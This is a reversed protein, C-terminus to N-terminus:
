EGVGKREAAAVQERLKGYWCVPLHKLRYGKGWPSEYEEIELRTGCSNCYCNCYGEDDPSPVRKAAELLGPLVSAAHANEQVKAVLMDVIDAVGPVGYNDGDVQNAPLVKKCEARITEIDDAEDKLVTQLHERAHLADAFHRDILAALDAQFQDARLKESPETHESAAQEREACVAAAARLRRIADNVDKWPGCRNELNPLALLARLERERDAPTM